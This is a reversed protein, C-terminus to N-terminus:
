RINWWSERCCTVDYEGDFKAGSKAATWKGNVYAQDFVLGSSARFQEMRTVLYSLRLVSIQRTRLQFLLLLLLANNINLM